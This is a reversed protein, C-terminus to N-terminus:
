KAAFDISHYIFYLRSPLAHQFHIRCVAGLAQRYTQPYRGNGAAPSSARTFVYLSQCERSNPVAGSVCAAM